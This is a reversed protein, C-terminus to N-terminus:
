KIESKRTIMDKWIKVKEYGGNITPFKINDFVKQAEFENLNNIIVLDKESGEKRLVIKYDPQIDMSSTKRTFM